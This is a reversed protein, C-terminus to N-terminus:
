SSYYVTVEGDQSGDVNVTTTLGNDVDNVVSWSLSPFTSDTLSLNINTFSTSGTPYDSSQTVSYAELTETAYVLEPSGTVKILSDSIGDFSSIYDFSSGSMSTLNITGELLDGVSVNTLSTFVADQGILYWSAVSWYPGGGAASPGWQLVPQLIANGGAPEIDNFLFFTQGNDTTPDPPVIWTSVFSQIPPSTDHTWYAYTVWGSEEPDRPTSEGPVFKLTVNGNADILHVENDEHALRGGKPLHHVKSIPRKGAPTLVTSM